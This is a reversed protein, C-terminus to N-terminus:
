MLSLLFKNAKDKELVENTLAFEGFYKMAALDYSQSARYASRFTGLYLVGEELHITAKWKKGSRTVGKYGSTNNKQIGKNRNNQLATASRLNVWRNDTRDLNIHDIGESPVFGWMYLFALQHAVYKKKSIKIMVRRKRKDAYGVKLAANTPKSSAILEPNRVFLGTEPFYTLHHKLKEQTLVGITTRM